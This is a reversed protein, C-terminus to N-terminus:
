KISRQPFHIKRKKLYFDSDEISRQLMLNSWDMSLSSRPSSKYFLPEIVRLATERESRLCRVGLQIMGCQDTEENFLDFYLFTEKDTPHFFVFIDGKGNKVKEYEKTLADIDLAIGLWQTIAVIEHNDLEELSSWNNYILDYFPLHFSFEIYNSM